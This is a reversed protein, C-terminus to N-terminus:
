VLDQIGRTEKFMQSHSGLNRGGESPSDSLVFFARLRRPLSWALDAESGLHCGAEPVQVRPGCRVALFREGSVRDQASALSKRIVSVLFLLLQSVALYVAEVWPVPHLSGEEVIVGKTRKKGKHQRQGPFLVGDGRDGLGKSFPPLRESQPPKLFEPGDKITSEM